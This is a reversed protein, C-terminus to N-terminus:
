GSVNTCAHGSVDGEAVGHIGGGEPHVGEAPCERLHLYGVQDQDVVVAFDDVASRVAHEVGRRKHNMRGDVGRTGVHHARRM